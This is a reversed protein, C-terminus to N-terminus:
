CKVLEEETVNKKCKACKYTYETVQMDIDEDRMGEGDNFIHVRCDEETSSRLFVDNKCYPCLMKTEKM